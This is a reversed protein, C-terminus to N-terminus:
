AVAKAMLFWLAYGANGRADAGWIFEDLLFVNDDTPATKTIFRVPRREQFVLPKISRTLDAVYWATPEAELEDIVMVELGLQSYLNTGGNTLLAAKVITLATIELSPPVILTKPRVGMPRGTEDTYGRMTKLVTQLNADTLALGTSWYNRQTGSAAVAENAPHDTDFFNQGDYCLSAEGDLMLQAIIDQPYLKAQRGLETAIPGYIGFTDDEIAEAPVSVTDEWKKNRITHEHASVNKIVRPGVWERMKPLSAMWAYVNEAGMSPVVTALKPYWVETERQAAQFAASYTRGISRINNPTIDM